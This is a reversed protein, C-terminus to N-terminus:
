LCSFTGDYDLPLEELTISSIDSSAIQKLKAEEEGELSLYTDRVHRM